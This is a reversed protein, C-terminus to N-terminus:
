PWPNTGLSRWPSMCLSPWTGFPPDHASALSTGVTTRPGIPTRPSLTPCPQYLATAGYHQTDLLVDEVAQPWLPRQQAPLLPATTLQPGNDAASGDDAASGTHAMTLQSGNPSDLERTTGGTAFIKAGSTAGSTIINSRTDHKPANSVTASHCM